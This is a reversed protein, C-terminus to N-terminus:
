YSGAIAMPRASASSIAPIPEEYILEAEGSDFAQRYVRRPRNNEDRWVWYITRSDNGWVMSGYGEDTLTAIDEGTELDRVKLEYFESGATDVAYALYRHDPSQSVAGLDYYEVGEAEADGDLIIQEEGSIEGNEDAPRRVYVPYQGGERYRVYYFSRATASPRLATTKKSAAACRTM